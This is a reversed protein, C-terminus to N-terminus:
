GFALTWTRRGVVPFYDFSVDPTAAARALLRRERTLRREWMRTRCGGQAAGDQHQTAHPPALCPSPM